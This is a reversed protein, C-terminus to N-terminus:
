IDITVRCSWGTEGREMELGSLSVSKPVSGTQVAAAVPVVRMTGWCEHENAGEVVVDGPVLGEADVIFIVEDLLAALLRGVDPARLYFSRDVSASVDMVETFQRVLGRAAETLCGAIDPGWAELITDATHPVSRHGRDLVM